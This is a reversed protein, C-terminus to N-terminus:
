AMVPYQGEILYPPGTGSAFTGGEACMTAADAGGTAAGEGRGWVHPPRSAAM